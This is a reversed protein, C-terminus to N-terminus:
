QWYKYKYAITRRKWARHRVSLIHADWGVSEAREVDLGQCGAPQCTAQLEAIPAIFM